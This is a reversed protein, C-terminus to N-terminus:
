RAKGQDRTVDVGKYGGKVITSNFASGISKQKLLDAHTEATVDAYQWVKGNQFEVELQKANPDYGISKLNSSQVPTRQM